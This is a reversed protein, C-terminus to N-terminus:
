AVHLTHKRKPSSRNEADRYMELYYFCYAYKYYIDEFRQNGKFVPFLEEYLQLAFRYKKKAYYEDAKVLKYEFDKSKQIKSFKNCSTIAFFLVLISVLVKISKM